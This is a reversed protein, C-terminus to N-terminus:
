NVSVFLHLLLLTKRKDFEHDNNRDNADQRGDSNRSVLVVRDACLYRFTQVQGTTGLCCYGLERHITTRERRVVVFGTNRKRAVDFALVDYRNRNGVAQDRNVVAVFSM